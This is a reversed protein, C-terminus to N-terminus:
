TLAESLHDAAKLLSRLVVMVTKKISIMTFFIEKFYFYLGYIWAFYSETSRVSNTARLTVNFVRLGIQSM